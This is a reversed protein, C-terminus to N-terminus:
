FTAAVYQTEEPLLTNEPGFTQIAITAETPEGVQSFSQPGSPGDYDIDTTGAAILDRCQAFSTCAEGDRTVGNIETAVAAPEDTGAIETALATIVVADYTEPGYLFDILDPNTEVLRQQFEPTVEALPATGTIGELVGAQDFQEGLANGTNGDVLYINKGESQSFGQEFLSTLIRASEDFGILQLADPDASVVEEVEADFNQAQPDYITEVVVEVGAEELPRRTFELLGRGYPDDLALIAVTENGGDIINDAAVRGQLVDSPATRFFLDDDEAVTLDPSTAAPSFMIKCASTVADLVTFSVGSSAAGLVVDVGANLHSDVTQTAIDTSADGSDGPAYSVDQGLVGGAANIEDVATQAGAIMPPGLFSLNGTEPLLAGFSLAGDTDGTCSPEAAGAEPAEVLAGYDITSETTEGAETTETGTDDSAEEDDDGGCAAAILSLGLVTASLRLWQSHHRM